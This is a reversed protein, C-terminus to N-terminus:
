GSYRDSGHISASSKPFGLVFIPTLSVIVSGLELEMVGVCNIDFASVVLSGVIDGFKGEGFKDEDLAVGTSSAAPRLLLGSM